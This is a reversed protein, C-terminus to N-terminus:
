LNIVKIIWIRIMLVMLRFMWGVEKGREDVGHRIFLVEIFEAVIKLQSIAFMVRRVDDAALAAIM